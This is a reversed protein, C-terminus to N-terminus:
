PRGRSKSAREFGAAALMFIMEDFGTSDTVYEWSQIGLDRLDGVVCLDVSIAGFPSGPKFGRLNKYSDVEKSLGFVV